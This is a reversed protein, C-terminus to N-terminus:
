STDGLADAGGCRVEAAAQASGTMHSLSEVAQALECALPHDGLKAHVAQVVQRYYGLTEQPSRSFREWVIPGHQELDLLISHANHLTDAAKVAAAEPSAQRIQEVAERKRAHWPRAHWPRALPLGPGNGEMKRESMANVIEAIRPGFREEIEALVVDQDEVVDHLLGAVVVESPFGHRLLIASVHVPHAIYPLDSGKRLQSRHATAALRLAGEYLDDYGRGTERVLGAKAIRLDKEALANGIVNGEADTVLLGKSTDLLVLRNGWPDEVVAARGIQIDFPPVIVTGGAEQFREAASAASRVKLDVEMEARETHLVIEAEGGPLRLGVAEETRWILEQGLRDRYFALGLDLDSVYLRICDVKQVLPSSIELPSVDQGPLIPM